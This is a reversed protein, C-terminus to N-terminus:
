KNLTNIILTRMARQAQIEMKQPLSEALIDYTNAKGRLEKALEQLLEIPTMERQAECPTNSTYQKAQEKYNDM